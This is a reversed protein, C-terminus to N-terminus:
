TRRKNQPCIASYCTKKLWQSNVTAMTMEGELQSFWFIVDNLEFDIKISRALDQAKEGDEKNEVDFDEEAMIDEPAQLNNDQLTDAAAAAGVILGEEIVVESGDGEGRFLSTHGINRLTQRLQELDEDM